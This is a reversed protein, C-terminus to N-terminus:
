IREVEMCRWNRIREIERCREFRGSAFSLSKWLKVSGINSKFVLNFYSSEHGLDRATQLLVRGM